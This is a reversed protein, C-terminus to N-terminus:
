RRKLGTLAPRVDVLFVLAAITFGLNLIIGIPILQLVVGLGLIISWATKTLKGAAVYAEAPYTLASVFVFIKVALMAFFILLSVQSQLDGM